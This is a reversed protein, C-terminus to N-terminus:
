LAKHAVLNQSTSRWNMRVPVTGSVDFPRSQATHIYAAFVAEVAKALRPEVPKRARAGRKPIREVQNSLAVRGHAAEIQRPELRQLKFQAVITWSTAIAGHAHLRDGRRRRSQFWLPRFRWRYRSRTM